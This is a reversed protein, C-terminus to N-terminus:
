PQGTGSRIATDHFHFSTVLRDFVSRYVQHLEPTSVYELVFLDSGKEVLVFTERLSIELFEPSGMPVTAIEQVTLRNAPRQGVTLAENALVQNRRDRAVKALLQKVAESKDSGPHRSISLYVVMQRESNVPGVFLEEMRSDSSSARSKWAEPAEFSYDGAQSTFVRMQLSGTDLALHAPADPEKAPFTQSVPDSRARSGGVLVVAMALITAVGLWGIFGIVEKSLKAEWQAIM